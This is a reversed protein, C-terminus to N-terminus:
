KFKAIPDGSNWLVEFEKRFREVIEPNWLYVQNERNAKFAHNTYNFSGIEIAKGDVITFKNHMIGRQHGYRIKAGAKFLLPVLSHSGKAQRRDVVFRVPIKKAKVLAHHVLEDINIDYIAIDLSKEASDIFKVLKVDCPENPSFCVEQDKPPSVAIPRLMDEVVSSVTGKKLNKSYALDPKLTLTTIVGSVLLAAVFATVLNKM